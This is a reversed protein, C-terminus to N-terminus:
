KTGDMEILELKYSIIIDCEKNMVQFETSVDSNIGEIDDINSDSENVTNNIKVFPPPKVPSQNDFSAISSMLLHSLALEANNRPLITTKM